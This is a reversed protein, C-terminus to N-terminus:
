PAKGFASQDLCIMFYTALEGPTKYGTVGGFITWPHRHRFPTQKESLSLDQTLLAAADHLQAITSMPTTASGTVAELTGRIVTGKQDFRLLSAAEMASMFSVSSKQGNRAKPDSSMRGLSLEVKAAKYDNVNTSGQPPAVESALFVNSIDSVDPPSSAPATSDWSKLSPAPSSPTPKHANFYTEDDVIAGAANRVKNKRHYWYGFDGPLATFSSGKGQTLTIGPVEFSATGIIRARRGKKAALWSTLRGLWAKSVQTGDFAYIEDVVPSSLWGNDLHLLQESGSSFGGAAVRGVAPLGASSDVHGEGALCKVLGTDIRPLGPGRVSGFHTANAQGPVNGIANPMPLLLIVKARSRDLQRNFDFDPYMWYKGTNNFYSGARAAGAFYRKIGGYDFADSTPYSDLEHRLFFYFSLEESELPVAPPILVGWPRSDGTHEFIRTKCPGTQLSQVQQPHLNKIRETIDLFLLDLEMPIVSGPAASTMRLTLRPHIHIRNGTMPVVLLKKTKKSRIVVLRQVLELVGPIRIQLKVEDTDPLTFTITGDAKNKVAGPPSLIVMSDVLRNNPSDYKIQVRTAPPSSTGAGGGAASEGIAFGLFMAAGADADGGSLVKSLAIPNFVRGHREVGQPTGFVLQTAAPLDAPDLHFTLVGDELTGQDFTLCRHVNGGGDEIVLSVDKEQGVFRSVLLPRPRAPPLEYSIEYARPDYVEDTKAHSPQGAAAVTGTEEGSSFFLAEVARVAGRRDPDEEHPHRLHRGGCGIARPGPQPLPDPSPAHVAPLPEEDFVDYGRARLKELDWKADRPLLIKEGIKPSRWGMDGDLRYQPNLPYLDWCDNESGTAIKALLVPYTDTHNNVILWPLGRHSIEHPWLAHDYLDFFAKWVALDLSKSSIKKGEIAFDRNYGERFGGIPDGTHDPDCSWGRTVATWRLIHEHDLPGASALSLKAWADRNRTLLYLVNKARESSLSGHHGTIVLTEDPQENARALVAHLAEVGTIVEADPRLPAPSVGPLVVSGTEDFAEIELAIVERRVLQFVNTSLLTGRSGLALEKRTGFTPGEIPGTVKAQIRPPGVPPARPPLDSTDELLRPFAIQCVTPGGPEISSVRGYGNGDLPGDKIQKGNTTQLDFTEGPSSKTIPDGAADFLLVEIWDDPPAGPPPLENGSSPKEPGVFVATGWREAPIQFAQLSGDRLAEAVRTRLAEAALGSRLPRPGTIEEAIEALTRLSVGSDSFWEGVRFGAAEPSILTAKEPLDDCFARVIWVEGLL